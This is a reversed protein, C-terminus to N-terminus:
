HLARRGAAAPLAALQYQRKRYIKGRKNHSALVPIVGIFGLCSFGGMLRAAQRGPLRWSSNSAIREGHKLLTRGAVYRTLMGGRYEAVSVAWRWSVPVVNMRYSFHTVDRVGVFCSEVDLSGASGDAAIWLWSKFDEGDRGVAVEYLLSHGWGRDLRTVVWDATRCRRLDSRGGVSSGRSGADSGSWCPGRGARVPIGLMM